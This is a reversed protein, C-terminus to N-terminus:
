EAGAAQPHHPVLILTKEEVRWSALKSLFNMGLVNTEGIGPAIVADLNSAAITGIRLRPITTREANTQGNATTLIVPPADPDAELGAREAVTTSLTTITAGTDVLFRAPTGRIMGKVWFHGDPAMAVRTESGSIVVNAEAESDPLGIDIHALRALSLLLAVIMGLNGLLRMTGGLFRSVGSVIGGVLVLFVSVLALQLLPHALVQQSILQSADALRPLIADLSLRGDAVSM